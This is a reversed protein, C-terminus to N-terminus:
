RKRSTHAPHIELPSFNDLSAPAQDQFGLREAVLYLPRLRSAFYTRGAYEGVVGLCLFHVGGMFLLALLLLKGPSIGTGLFVYKILAYGLGALALGSSLFGMIAATRVLWLPFASFSFIGHAALDLLKWLPYKSIGALRAARRYPLAVQRFGAWSVMGRIYRDPEPMLNLANVVKRDVLRFDGVDCPIDINALKNLLRCYGKASWNRFATEGDRETRQGYVVEYGQQWLAVMEKILEPPDQLDADLIVVADGSANQLGATIAIQHGYNRSLRIVKVRPDSLQIEKLVTLTNDTSGDDVYIVEHDLNIKSLADVLRRQTERLVLEENLCPLVVSLLM